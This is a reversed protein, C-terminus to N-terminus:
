GAIAAVAAVVGSLAALAFCAALTLVYAKGFRSHGTKVAQTPEPLSQRIRERIVAFIGYLAALGILLGILSLFLIALWGAEREVGVQYCDWTGPDQQVQLVAGVKHSSDIQGIRSGNGPGTRTFTGNCTISQGRGTGTTLCDTILLTGPVGSERSAYGFGRVADVPGAVGFGIGVGAFLLLLLCIAVISGWSDPKTITKRPVPAAKTAKALGSDKGM